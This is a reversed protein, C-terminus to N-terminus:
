GALRLAGNRSLTIPSIFISAVLALVGPIVRRLFLLVMGLYPMFIPVLPIITGLLTNVYGGSSVISTATSTSYNSIILLRTTSILLIGVPSLILAITTSRSLRRPLDM